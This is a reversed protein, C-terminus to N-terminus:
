QQRQRLEEERLSMLEVKERLDRLERALPALMSSEFAEKTTREREQYERQPPPPPSPTSPPPAHPDIAATVKVVQKSFFGLIGGQKEKKTSIIMADPGLEAKVLRLAETMTPAQFTKVLM